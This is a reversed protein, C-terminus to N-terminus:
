GSGTEASWEDQGIKLFYITNDDEWSLDLDNL